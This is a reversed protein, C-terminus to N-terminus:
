IFTKFYFGRQFNLVSSGFRLMIYAVYSLVVTLMMSLPSLSLKEELVLFLALNGVRIM